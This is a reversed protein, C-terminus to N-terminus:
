ADHSAHLGPCLLKHPPQGETDHLFAVVALSEAGGGARHHLLVLAWVGGAPVGSRGSGWLPCPSLQALPRGSGLNGPAAGTVPRLEWRRWDSAPGGGSAELTNM